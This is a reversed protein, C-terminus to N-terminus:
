LSGSHVVTTIGAYNYYTTFMLISGCVQESDITQDDLIYEFAQLDVQCLVIAM